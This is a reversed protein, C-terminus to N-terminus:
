RGAGQAEGELEALSPLDEPKELGFYELFRFSTGYLYPRGPTEARGVETILGRTKLTSLVHDCSVGRIAEIASRTIPQKYAIIALTEVAGQSLRDDESVGLFRQVYPTAEPATVLQASDGVIQVRVGRRRCDEALEALAQRVEDTSSGSIRSLTAIEAPGQAVFLISELILKLSATEAAMARDPM